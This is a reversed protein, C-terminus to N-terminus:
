FEYGDEELKTKLKLRARCILTKANCYSLKLMIAIETLPLNAYYHLVLIERYKLPLSIITEYIIRNKEKLILSDELINECIKNELNEIQTYTINKSKRLSDIWKNKWM